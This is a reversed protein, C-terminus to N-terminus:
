KKSRRRRRRKMMKTMTSRVSTMNFNLGREVHLKQSPTSVYDDESGYMEYLFFIPRVTPITIKEERERENKEHRQYQKENALGSFFACYPHSHFYEM